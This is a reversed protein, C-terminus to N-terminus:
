SVSKRLSAALIRAALQHKLHVALPKWQLVVALKLLLVALHKSPLVLLLLVALPLKLLVALLPKLLVLLLLVVVLPKLLV